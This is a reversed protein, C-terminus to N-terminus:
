AFWDVVAAFAYAAGLAILFVVIARGATRPVGMEDLYRRAFFSVVFFVITSLVFGLM